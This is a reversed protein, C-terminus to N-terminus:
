GLDKNQVVGVSDSLQNWQVQHRLAYVADAWVPALIVCQAKGSWGSKRAIGSELWRLVPYLNRGCSPIVHDDTRHQPISCPKRM